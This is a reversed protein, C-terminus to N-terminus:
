RNLYRLLEKVGIGRHNIKLREEESLQSYYKGNVIVIPDYGFGSGEKPTTAIVGELDYKHKWFEKNKPDCFVLVGTYRCTRKEEPINKMKELVKTYRDKDTGSIWRRSHLGPEGNLADIFLGTDDALTSLGSKESYFKVKREANELLTEGDEIVDDTIGLDAPALVEIDKALEKFLKQFQTLKNKNNTGILLKM